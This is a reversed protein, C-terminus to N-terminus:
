PILTLREQTTNNTKNIGMGRTLEIYDKQVTNKCWQGFDVNFKLLEPFLAILSINTKAGEFVILWLNQVKPNIRQMNEALDVHDFIQMRRVFAILTMNSYDKNGIKREISQQISETSDHSSIEFVEVNVMSLTQGKGDPTKILEMALVDPPDDKPLQIWWEKENLQAHCIFAVACIWAEKHQKVGKGAIVTNALENIIYCPSFWIKDSWPRTNM